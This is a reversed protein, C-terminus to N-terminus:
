TGLLFFLFVKFIAALHPFSCISHLIVSHTKSHYARKLLVCAIVIPAVSVRVLQIPVKEEERNSIWKPHVGDQSKPM